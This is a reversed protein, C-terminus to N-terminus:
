LRVVGAVLKWHAGKWEEPLSVVLYTTVEDDDDFSYMDPQDGSFLDTFAPDTVKLSLPTDCHVFEAYLKVGGEYRWCVPSPAVVALSSTVGGNSVDDTSVSKSTTGFLPDDTAMRKLLSQAQSRGLCGAPRWRGKGLAWNEPQGPIPVPGDLPVSVIDLLNAISGNALRQDALTVSGHQGTGVPRIWEGTDLDVGAFCYEGLKVSNALCILDRRSM